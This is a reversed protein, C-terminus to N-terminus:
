SSSADGLLADLLEMGGPTLEYYALKGQQRRAVLQVRYLVGLHHSVVSQERGAVAVLDSVCLEGSARMAALLRIRTARSSM